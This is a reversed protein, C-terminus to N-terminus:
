GFNPIWDHLGMETILLIVGIAVCWLFVRDSHSNRAHYSCLWAIGTLMGCVGGFIGAIVSWLIAALEIPGGCNRYGSNQAASYLMAILLVPVIVGLAIAPIVSVSTLYLPWTSRLRRAAAALSNTFAWFAASILLVLQFGVIPRPTGNRLTLVEVALGDANVASVSGPHLVFFISGWIFAATVGAHM